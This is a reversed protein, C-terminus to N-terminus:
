FKAGYSVELENQDMTLTNSGGGLATPIPGTVSASLGHMYALSLESQTGLAVTFGLTVHQEIVGPALINFLTETTPIPQDNRNYGARLTWDQSAAFAAGLKYVGISKWGFGFGNDAGLLDTSAYPPMATPGPNHIAAVDAYNIREYDLAVVVAGGSRWAAGVVYTSPIDFDGQGAFLGAYKNFPTMNMKPQYAAGLSFGGGLESLLGVRLGIGHSSDTGNNTVSGPKSSFFPNDFPQLGKASFQQYALIASVGLLVPGTRVGYGLNLFLQSLNVGTSGVGGGYVPKAYDTNMGGNGYIALGIAQGSASGWKAGFDPVYFQKSDSSQAATAILPSPGNYSYERNPNFVALGVDYRPDLLALGAPNTASVLADQPLAAAAGAMGKAKTGIGHSFYGNTALSLGPAALLLAALLAIWRTTRLANM